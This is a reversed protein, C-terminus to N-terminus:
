QLAISEIGPGPDCVASFNLVNNAGARDLLAQVWIAGLAHGIGTPPFAVKTAIQGNVRLAAYRPTKDPNNYTIRVQAMPVRSVVHTFSVEQGKGVDVGTYGEGWPPLKWKFLSKYFKKAQVVDDTALEVHVFPNSM